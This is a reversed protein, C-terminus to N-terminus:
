FKRWDANENDSYVHEWISDSLPDRERNVEQQVKKASEKLSHWIEKQKKETLLKLNKLRDEFLAIPCIEGKIYNAGSASSHGYLRSVHCELLFPRRHKRVYDMAEKLVLYSEVPDNGNVTATEINFAKGRDVISSEGHQGKYHTSIGWQNNQVTILMPLPRKPKSAWILCTAFDAEATGADGGTVVTIASTDCRSQVHATGLAISYQSGIISTVPAINWQFSSYHSSFNRGGTYPDTAKNMTLRIAEKVTMGMAVLTPTARYHLHLWDHKLGTGKKVLLGLPVGFGEEGPGGVWFPAQGQKYIQILREELVRSQVMLFHMRLLVDEPINTIKRNPSSQFKM